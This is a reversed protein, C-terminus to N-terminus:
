DMAAKLLGQVRYPAANADTIAFIGNGGDSFDKVALVLVYDEVIPMQWEVDESFEDRVKTLFSTLNTELWNKLSRQLEDGEPM